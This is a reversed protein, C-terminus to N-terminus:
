LLADAARLLPAIQALLDGVRRVQQLAQGADGDFLTGLQEIQAALQDCVQMVPEAGRTIQETLERALLGRVRAAATDMQTTLYRVVEGASQDIVAHLNAFHAELAAFTQRQMQCFDDLQAVLETVERSSTSLATQTDSHLAQIAGGLEADMTELASVSEECTQRLATHAPDLAACDDAITQTHRVVLDASSAISALAAQVTEGGQAPEGEDEEAGAPEHDPISTLTRYGDLAHTAAHVDEHEPAVLNGLSALAQGLQDASSTYGNEIEDLADNLDALVRIVHQDLHSTLASVTTTLGSIHTSM